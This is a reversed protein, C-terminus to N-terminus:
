PIFLFERTNVLASIINRYGSEGRDEVEQEMIKMEDDSPLRSLTGMFIARIRDQVSGDSLKHIHASRNSVVLKEVQGNMM